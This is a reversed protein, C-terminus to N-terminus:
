LASEESRKNVRLYIVMMIVLALALVLAQAAAAGLDGRSLYQFVKVSVVQTGAGGGTLLYVDDFKNFTFIFRLVLLVSLIPTLQPLIVFRFRQWPTAGDVRAAEEVDASLAGLRATIFLFAFPFYRWTEFVIVTALATSPQSLFPIGADWGLFRQGWDNILGFGPDLMTTWCFTVAVVPAVYPLLMAGRILGRGPFRSRLALAVILGVSISGVTAGVTYIFTTLLSSWFDQATFVIEFNRLTFQGFIGQRRINILRVRQFAMIVTFIIPIIVIVTVVLVTPSILTLGARADRQALTRHRRARAPPREAERYPGGTPKGLQGSEPAALQSAPDM